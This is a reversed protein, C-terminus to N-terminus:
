VDLEDIHDRLVGASDVLDAREDDTLPLEVTRDIGSRNVVSPLSLYVDEVGHEGDLLTSVSLISNEDRVIAEVIRRVGLGIAYYTAGKKDIIEYAAGRVREDIEARDPREDAPLAQRCFEDFPTGGVHTASWALVESDGHEGVVYAHVNKEAVGCVESLVNRFRGTDLVTGSGLVRDAPLGSVQWTVYTLVDVPNTVVLLVADDHLGETIRPVMEKFVETNRELLELRTEGPEQPVGATIVVVDADWVDEYDGARVRVPKVFSAGHGLDMAEGEAKEHDIDVLVIDTIAESDMLAYAATAGVDGAGVIAVKGRIVGNSMGTSPQVVVSLLPRGTGPTRSPGGDFSPSDGARAHRRRVTVARLYRYGTRSDAAVPGFCPALWM